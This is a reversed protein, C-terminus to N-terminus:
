LGIWRFYLWCADISTIFSITYDCDYDTCNHLAYQLDFWFMCLSSCCYVMSFFSDFNMKKSSFKSKRPTLIGDRRLGNYERAYLWWCGYFVKGWYNKPNRFGAICVQWLGLNRFTTDAVSFNVFLSNNSFFRSQFRGLGFKFGIPHQLDSLIVLLPSYGLSYHM